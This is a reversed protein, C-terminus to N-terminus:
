VNMTQRAYAPPEADSAEASGTRILAASGSDPASASDSAAATTMTQQVPSMAVQAQRQLNNVPSAGTVVNGDGHVIQINQNYVVQGGGYQRRDVELMLHYESPATNQATSVRANARVVVTAELLFRVRPFKDDLTMNEAQVQRKLRQWRRKQIADAVICGIPLM